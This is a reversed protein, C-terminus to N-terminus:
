AVGASFVDAEGTVGGFWTAGSDCAEAVVVGADEVGAETAWDIVDDGAVGCDVSTAQGSAWGAVVLAAVWDAGLWGM